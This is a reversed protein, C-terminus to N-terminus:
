AQLELVVGSHSHSPTPDAVKFGIREYLQIARKNTDLVETRIQSIGSEKAWALTSQILQGAVGSGRHEPSVWVQILEGADKHDQDRYLAAVGVPKDSDFALFTSRNLGEASYDAQEIWSELLKNSTFLRHFTTSFSEPSDKLSALRIQRYSRWEGVKIRRVTLMQSSIIYYVAM